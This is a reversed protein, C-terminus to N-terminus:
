QISTSAVAIEITAGVPLGARSTDLTIYVGRIVNVKGRQVQQNVVVRGLGAVHIATNPAVDVPIARGGVTLNLLSMKMTGRYVGSTQTGRAVVRIADATVLGGLLNVTAVENTNHVVADSEGSRSSTTASGVAATTLLGPINVAATNNGLTTGNSGSYPTRVAATPGSTVKVTGDSEARVRTGYATGGLVAGEELDIPTVMQFLPNVFIRAGAPADGRAQLLVVALGWARTARAGDKAASVAGNISVQAVNPITVTYNKPIDAPLEVGTIRLNLLSTGATYSSATTTGTTTATTTVADATILGGLLRLDATRATSRVRLGDTVATSSAGTTIAGTRLLDDLVEVTAVANSNSRGAPGGIVGSQATLDSSVMADLAQVQTGGAVALYSWDIAAQAPVPAGLSVLALLVTAVLLRFRSMFLGM